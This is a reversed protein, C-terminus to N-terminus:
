VVDRHSKGLRIKSITNHKMHLREALETNKVEKPAARIMRVLEPPTLITGNAAWAKEISARRQELNTGKRKGFRAAHAGMEAKSRALAIHVPNVCDTTMCRRFALFGPTPACGHAINWIAKPGSMARKECRAYDLTWIRPTGDVAKAGLWHWCGGLDVKCRARVDAITLVGRGSM